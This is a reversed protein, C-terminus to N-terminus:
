YIKSLRGIRRGMFLYFFQKDERSTEPFHLLHRDFIRINRLSLKRPQGYNTILSLKINSIEDLSFTSVDTMTNNISNKDAM